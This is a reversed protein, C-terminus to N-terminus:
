EARLASLLPSRLAVATALLSAALGSALVALLLLGLTATPPRGGRSFIVPTIAVLACAAGTILGCALLFANEAIVMLSFHSSNYGIARLLALERRRELVNRLLVAGLGLTGLVLGLGGLMQFTSIFTNEVRHFNALREGAAVVDFGYDSLRDELLTAIANSEREAPVDLLFFRHGEQEPFLQLFNKESMLLESQFITDALAGVVRLRLPNKGDGLDLVFLDGVKLHLVYSLSNADGIVPIAGDEAERNLLLWPNNKEEETEALSAQFSFRGSGLFDDTPALIRPNRPEYLNLCSADDGPRVRFRTFAIQDLVATESNTWLDLAERGEPTNPDHVLPLISEALLAYGGSGSKKDPASQGDDRRFADVSVIIFAASAILAICLVSRGPRHAANRFGLRSVSWWGRGQILRKGKRRLWVSQYCLLAVLLASGGGFFGAAQGVWNMAAALLLAVGLANLIVAVRAANFVRRSLPISFARGSERGHGSGTMWRRQEAREESRGPTGTLLSRTSIRAMRRLTWVVCLLAALLGGASGLLLSSASVHLGLMTT